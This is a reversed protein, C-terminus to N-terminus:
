LQAFNKLLQEGYHHSKEPHFQVGYINNKNIISSFLNHYRTKAIINNHNEIDFAYSHLFYFRSKHEINKLIRDNKSIEIENWGMHPLLIKKDFNNKIIKKVNGNIWGLGNLNGEDSNKAFIQMGVCIGLIDMKKDLVLNNLIELFNSQNIKNMVFDFSGVGPLILKNCKDFDYANNIILNKIKLNNYINSIARINGSGYNIIGIM